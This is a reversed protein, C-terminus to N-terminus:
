FLSFMPFPWAIGIFPLLLVMIIAVLTITINDLGKSKQLYDHVLRYLKIATESGQKAHWKNRDDSEVLPTYVVPIGQEKLWQLNAAMRDMQAYFHRKTPNEDPAFIQGIDVPDNWSRGSPNAFFTFAGVIMGRDWMKKVGQNWAEDPFPNDDFDYTICGYRPM